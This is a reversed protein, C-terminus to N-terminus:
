DVPASSHALCRAAEGRSVHAAGSSTTSVRKSSSWTRKDVLYVLRHEETIRRSWAGTRSEPIQLRGVRTAHVRAGSPSTTSTGNARWQRSSARLLRKANAPVRLLHATEELAAFEEASFLVANGRRSTIEVAARDNNVKEILPFLHKRADTATVSTPSSRSLPGWETRSVAQGREQESSDTEDQDAAAPVDVTVDFRRGLIRRRGHEVDDIRM